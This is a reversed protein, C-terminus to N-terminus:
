SPSTTASAEATGVIGRAFVFRVTAASASRIASSTAASSAGAQRRRDGSQPAGDGCRPAPVDSRAAIDAQNGLVIESVAGSAAYGKCSGRTVRRLLDAAHLREEVQDAEADDQEDTAFECPAFAWKQRPLCFPQRTTPDSPM